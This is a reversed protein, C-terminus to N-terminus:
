RRVENLFAFEGHHLKALENYDLAAEVATRRYPGHYTKGHSGIRACFPKARPYARFEKVGKYGHRNNKQPGRNCGNGRKDTLRLNSRRNDLGNLNEHDVLIIPDGIGMIERHMLRIRQSKGNRPLNRAAYGDHWHWKYASLWEYDAKDVIAYKGQTLKIKCAADTKTFRLPM